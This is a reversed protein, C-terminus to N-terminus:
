VGQPRSPIEPVLTSFDSALASIASNWGDLRSIYDAWAESQTSRYMRNAYVYENDVRKHQFTRFVLHLNADWVTAAPLVGGQIMSLEGKTMEYGKCVNQTGGYGDDETGHEFTLIVRDGKEFEDEMKDQSNIMIIRM